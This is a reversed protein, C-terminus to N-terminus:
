RGAAKEASLTLCTGSGRAALSGSEDAFDCEVLGVTKGRKVIHSESRFRTELGTQSFNIKLESTTFTKGKAPASAYAIGVPPPGCRGSKKPGEGEAIRRDNRDVTAM